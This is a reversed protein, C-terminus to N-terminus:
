LELYEEVAERMVALNPEVDTWLQFNIAAQRLYIELGNIVKCGRQEAQRLLWTRLPGLMLDLVVTQGDLSGLGLPLTTDDELQMTQVVVDSDDPIQYKTELNDSSVAIDFNSELLEVLSEIKRNNRDVVTIKATGAKALEVAVAVAVRGAGIIVVNKETPNTLEGLARLVAKGETNEGVLQNDKRFVVNVVNLMSAMETTCDLHEIIKEKHPDACNGGRFGLVKMGHVADGLNEATVELTLYRWDLDHHNFAKEFMYQSPNGSVPDGLLALIPQLSLDSV